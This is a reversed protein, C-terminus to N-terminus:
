PSPKYDNCKEGKLYPDCTLTYEVEFNGLSSTCTLRWSGSTPSDDCSVLLDNDKKWTSDDDWLKFRFTHSTDV